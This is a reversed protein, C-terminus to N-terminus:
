TSEGDRERTQRTKQVACQLLNLTGDDVYGPKVLFISNYGAKKANM